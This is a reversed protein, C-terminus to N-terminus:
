LRLHLDKKSNPSHFEHGRLDRGVSLEQSRLGQGRCISRFQNLQLPAGLVSAGRLSVSSEAERKGECGCYLLLDLAFETKSNDHILTYHGTKWHRLEGQCTPVSSELFFVSSWFFILIVKINSSSQLPIVM